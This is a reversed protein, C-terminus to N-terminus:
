KTFLNKIWQKLTIWFSLKPERETEFIHHKPKVKINTANSNKESFITNNNQSIEISASKEFETQQNNDVNINETQTDKFVHKLYNERYNDNALQIAEEYTHRIDKPLIDDKLSDIDISANNKYSSDIKSLVFEIFSSCENLYFHVQYESFRIVIWGHSNMNDNREDDSDGKTHCPKKKGTYPEDIEVDIRINLKDDKGIIAIDPAYPLQGNKIQLKIDNFVDYDTLRERLSNYLVEEKVGQRYNNISDRRYPFVRKNKEPFLLIPYISKNLSYRQSEFNLPIFSSITKSIVFRLDPINYGVYRIKSDEVVIKSQNTAELKYDNNKVNPFKIPDYKIFFQNKINEGIISPEWGEMYENKENDYRTLFSFGKYKMPELDKSFNFESDYQDYPGAAFIYEIGNIDDLLCSDQFSFENFKKVYDGDFKFYRSHLGKIISLEEPIDKPEKSLGGRSEVIYPKINKILSEEFSEFFFTISNDEIDEVTSMLCDKMVGRDSAKVICPNKLKFKGMNWISLTLNILSHM